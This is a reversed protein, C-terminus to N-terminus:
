GDLGPVAEGLPCAVDGLLEVPVLLLVGGELEPLMSEPLEPVDLPLPVGEPLVRDAGGDLELPPVEDVGEVLEDLLVPELVVVSGALLLVPELAVPELAVLSEALPLM